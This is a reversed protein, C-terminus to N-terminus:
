CDRRGDALWGGVSRVAVERLEVDYALHTARYVAGFAGEDLCQVKQRVSPAGKRCEELVVINQQTRGANGGRERVVM